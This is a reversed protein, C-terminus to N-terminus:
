SLRINDVEKRATEANDELVNVVSGDSLTKNDTIISTYYKGNIQQPNKPDVRAFNGHKILRKKM